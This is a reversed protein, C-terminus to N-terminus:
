IIKKNEYNENSFCVTCNTTITSLFADFHLVPSSIRNLTGVVGCILISTRPTVSSILVELMLFAGCRVKKKKHINGM